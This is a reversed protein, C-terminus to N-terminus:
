LSQQLTEQKKQYRTVDKLLGQTHSQLSLQHLKHDKPPTLNGASGQDQIPPGTAAAAAAVSGVLGRTKAELGKLRLYTM